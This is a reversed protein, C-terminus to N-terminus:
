VSIGLVAKAALGIGYTVVVAIGTV